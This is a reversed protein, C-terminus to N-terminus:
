FLFLFGELLCSLVATHIAQRKSGQGHKGHSRTLVKELDGNTDGRGIVRDRGVQERRLIDLVQSM